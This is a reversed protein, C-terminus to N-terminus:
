NSYNDIIIKMRGAWISRKKPEDENNDDAHSSSINQYNIEDSCESANLAAFKTVTLSSQFSINLNTYILLPSHRFVKDLSYFYM